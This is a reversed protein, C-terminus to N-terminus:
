TVPDDPGGSIATCIQFRPMIGVMTALSNAPWVMSWVMAQAFSSSSPNVCQAEAPDHGVNRRVVGRGAAADSAAGPAARTGGREDASDGCPVRRMVETAISRWRANPTPRATRDASTTRAIIASRTMSVGSARLACSRGVGFAAAGADDDREQDAQQQKVAERSNARSAFSYKRPTIAAESAM